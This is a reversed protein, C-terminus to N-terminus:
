GSNKKERLRGNNALPLINYKPVIISVFLSEAWWDWFSFLKGVKERPSSNKFSASLSFFLPFPSEADSGQLRWSESWQGLTFHLLNQCFSVRTSGFLLCVPRNWGKFTLTFKETKFNNLKFSSSEVSFHFYFWNGNQKIRKGRVIVESIAPRKERRIQHVIGGAINYFLQNM